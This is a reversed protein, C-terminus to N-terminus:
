APRVGVRISVDGNPLLTAINSISGSIPIFLVNVPNYVVSDVGKGPISVYVETDGRRVKIRVKDKILEDLNNYNTNCLLIEVYAMSREGFTVLNVTVPKTTTDYSTYVFELLPLLSQALRKNHKVVVKPDMTTDVSHSIYWCCKQM